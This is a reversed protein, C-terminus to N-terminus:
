QCSVPRIGQMCKRTAYVLFRPSPKHVCAAPRVEDITKVMKKDLKPFTSLDFSELIEKFKIPDPFDGPPLHYERQVHAFEEALSSLLKDQWRM